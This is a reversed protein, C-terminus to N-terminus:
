KTWTWSAERETGSILFPRYATASENYGVYVKRGYKFNSFKKNINWVTGDSLTIVSRYGCPVQDYGSVYWNGSSDVSYIPVTISDTACPKSANVVVLSEDGYNALMVKVYEGNSHNYLHFKHERKFWYFSTRYEVHIIDGVDWRSFKRPHDPHVKWQSGDSLVAVIDGRFDGHSDGQFEYSGVLYSDFALSRDVLTEEESASVITTCTALVIFLSIVINKIM